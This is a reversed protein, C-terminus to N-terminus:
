RIGRQTFHLGTGAVIGACYCLAVLWVATM